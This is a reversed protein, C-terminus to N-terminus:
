PRKEYVSIHKGSSATFPSKDWNAWRNKLNLGALQAMLDLESPWAYRLNVPYLKIGNENIVIHQSVVQQLMPDHLSADLRVEGDDVGVTRFAQGGAFRSLDPVFAEVLFMGGPALHDSVSCFCRVQEEQTLLAFFTNFAIFVLSYKGEVAVDAFNGMTVPIESGGPKARLKAVMAPSADIGHIDVGRERLPLAFRGTGIGLELVKGGRALECLTQVAVTDCTPYWEDYIHAIKEGYTDERYESM